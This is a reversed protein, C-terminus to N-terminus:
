NPQDALEVVAWYSVEPVKVTVHQDDASAQLTLPQSKPAHLVARTFKRGGFLDRRLRLTVDKQPIMADKAGAYQRNILHLAVPSGADGPIARPVVLLEASGEVVVPAPVLQGLLTDDPWVVLRGAAKLEDILKKQAADMGQERAVIVAKFRALQERSLRYDLWDDGAMVVTFPVNRGALAACIPEINAQHKRRAASDYVVAVPAVAEYRDVLRATQRVFQYVYAYEEVPGVYTHSGKEQTYCWQNHPAMFNHGFAYSLAIWTRVLCPLNHEKVHAWDAGGATSTVPRKVGDALKYVYVPGLPVKRSAADHGV